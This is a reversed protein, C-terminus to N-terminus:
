GGAIPPVLLIRKDNPNFGGRIQEGKQGGERMKFAAYKKGGTMEEFTRKANAVEIPENPNWSIEIDGQPGMVSITHREQEQDLTETQM